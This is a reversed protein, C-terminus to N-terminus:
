ALARQPPTVAGDRWLLTTWDDLMRGFAFSEVTRRRGTNGMRM